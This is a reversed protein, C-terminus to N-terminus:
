PFSFYPLCFSSDGSLLPSASVMTPTLLATEHLRWQLVTVGASFGSWVVLYGLLFIGTPVFPREQERRKRNVAAFTLIVPAASPVMMAAMMIVWMTFMLLQSMCCLAKESHQMDWALYVTCAWSLAMVGVLGSVVVLRDRKIMREGLADRIQMDEGSELRAVGTSLSTNAPSATGSGSLASARRRIQPLGVGPRWRAPASKLVRANLTQVRQGPPTMPGTLAEARAMVRGPVEARWHSLDSAIEFEIPVFEIGRMEGILEAFVAPFGGARGGFITELAERQRQDAREDLFVGMIAKTEGAWINGEFTALAMVNVAMSRCMVM